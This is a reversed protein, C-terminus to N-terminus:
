EAKAIEAQFVLKAHLGVVLPEQRNSHSAKFLVPLTPEIHKVENYGRLM